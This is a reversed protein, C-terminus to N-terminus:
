RRLRLGPIPAIKSRTILSQGEGRSRLLRWSPCWYPPVWLGRIDAHDVTALVPETEEPPPVEIFRVRWSQPAFLVRSGVDGHGKVASTMDSGAHRRVQVDQDRTQYYRMVNDNVDLM